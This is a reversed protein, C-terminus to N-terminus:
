TPFYGVGLPSRHSLIILQRIQEHQIEEYDHESSPAPSSSARASSAQEPYQKAHADGDEYVKDKEQDREQERARTRPDVDLSAGSEPERTVDRSIEAEERTGRTGLPGCRVDGSEEGLLLARFSLPTTGIPKRESSPPLSGSGGASGGHLGSLGLLRDTAPQSFTALL